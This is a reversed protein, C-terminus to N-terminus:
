NWKLKRFKPRFISLYHRKSQMAFVKIVLFCACSYGLVILWSGFSIQKTYIIFFVHLLFIILNAGLLIFFLVSFTMEIFASIKNKAVTVNTPQSLANKLGERALGLLKKLGQLESPEFWSNIERLAPGIMKIFFCIALPYISWALNQNELLPLFDKM